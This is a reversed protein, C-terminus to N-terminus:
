LNGDTLRELMSASRTRRTDARLIASEGADLGLRDYTVQSDSPLVGAGILKVTEDAAAARTPTSADAWRCSVANFGDPVRGDRVLLALRGVELWSRSFCTQRREARKVHRAEAGRISDAGSAQNAATLGLAAPPLGTEAALQMVLAELHKTFPTPDNAKFEGVSPLDGNEDRPAVWVRGMVAEWASRTSGDPNQFASEDAGMMWRQPAAYFERNTEMALMTRVANDSLYKVTATIESRGSARSGRMRNLIPVVPVRGLKHDDVDAVRWAGQVRQVTVSREPLYLTAANTQGAEDVDSVALGAIARRKKADWLVTTDNPSEVTVLPSPDGADGAGVIAFSIGHILADTHALSSDVDLTNAAYVESLGFPDTGSDTWGLWDLREELADVVTGPWGSVTKVSQLAPPTSIGLLRTAHDGEYYEANEMNAARYVSLRKLMEKILDLDDGSLSTALIPTPPILWSGSLATTM